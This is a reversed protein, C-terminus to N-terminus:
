RAGPARERKESWTLPSRQRRGSPASERARGRIAVEAPAYNRRTRRWGRSAGEARRARRRPGPAPRGRGRIPPCFAGALAGIAREVEAMLWAAQPLEAHARLLAGAHDLAANPARRRRPSPRRADPRCNRSAIARRHISPWSRPVSTPRRKSSSGTREGGRPADAEIGARSSEFPVDRALGAHRCGGRDNPRRARPGIKERKPSRRGCAKVRAPKRRRQKRKPRPADGTAKPRTARAKPRDSRPRPPAQQERAFRPVRRPRRPMPRRPRPAAAATEKAAQNSDIVKGAHGDVKVSGWVRAIKGEPDILFTSRITGEVKKGYMTKTSRVRRLGKHIALTPTASSPFRDQIKDERFACHSQDLGQLRRRSEASPWPAPLM